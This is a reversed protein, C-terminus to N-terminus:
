SARLATPSSSYRDCRGTNPTLGLDSFVRCSHKTVSALTEALVSSRKPFTPEALKGLQGAPPDEVTKADEYIRKLLLGCTTGALAAVEAGVVGEAALFAAASVEPAALAAIIGGVGM